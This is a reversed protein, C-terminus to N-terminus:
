PEGGASKRSFLRCVFGKVLLWISIRTAGAPTADVAGALQASFAGFFQDAMAGAAADILRSGVQALRGGVQASATYILATRQEGQPDLRVRAEGRAFGAAGGQGEFQITYSRPADIDTLAMHGKFRARVPGIAATVVVDFGGSGNAIISECGPISAQLLRV